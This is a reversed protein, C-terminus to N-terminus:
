TRRGFAIRFDFRWNSAYNTNDSTACPNNGNRRFVYQLLIDKQNIYEKFDRASVPVGQGNSGYTIGQNTAPNTIYGTPANSVSQQALLVVNGGSITPTVARTMGIAQEVIM